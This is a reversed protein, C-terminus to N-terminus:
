FAVPISQRNSSLVDEIDVSNPNIKLVKYRRAVIDGEHAVFANEGQALFVAKPEGPQSAWGWFKRNIPPPPPPPPPPEVKKVLVAPAVPKPIDDASHEEFIDRGSGQYKIGESGALLDLRLHPDLTPKLLSAVYPHADNRSRPSASADASRQVSTTKRVRSAAAPASVGRYLVLVGFVLLAAATIAKKKNEAGLKM